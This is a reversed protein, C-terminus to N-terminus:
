TPIERARLQLQNDVRPKDGHLTRDEVGVTSKSLMMGPTRANQYGVLLISTTMRLSASSSSGITRSSSRPSSRLRPSSTTSFNRSSARFHWRVTSSPPSMKVAADVMRVDSVCPHFCSCVDHCWLSVVVVLCCEWRLTCCSGTVGGEIAEPATNAM